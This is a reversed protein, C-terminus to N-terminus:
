TPAIEQLYEWLERIEPFVVNLGAMWAEYEQQLRDMTKQYKRICLEHPELCEKEYRQRAEKEDLSRDELWERFYFREFPMPPSPEYPVARRKEQREESLWAEFTPPPLIVAEELVYKYGDFDQFSYSIRDSIVGRGSVFRVKWELIKLTIFDPPVFSIYTGADRIGGGYYLVLAEAAIRLKRTNWTSSLDWENGSIFVTTELPVDLTVVKRRIYPPSTILRDGDFERAAYTLRNLPLPPDLFFDKILRQSRINYGGWVVQLEHINM